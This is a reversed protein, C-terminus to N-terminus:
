LSVLFYLFFCRRIMLIETLGVKVLYAASFAICSRFTPPVSYVRQPPLTFTSPVTCVSGFWDDPPIIFTSLTARFRHITCSTSLLPMYSSSSLFHVPSEYQTPLSHVPPFVPISLLSWIWCRTIGHLQVRDRRTPSVPKNYQVRATERSKQKTQEVVPCSRVCVSSNNRRVYIMYPRQKMRMSTAITTTEAHSNVLHSHFRALFEYFLTPLSQLSIQRSANSHPWSLPFRYAFVVSSCM